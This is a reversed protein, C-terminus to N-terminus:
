DKFNRIDLIKFFFLVILWTNSRWYEGTVPDIQIKYYIGESNKLIVSYVEKGDTNNYLEANKSIISDNFNDEVIKYAEEASIYNSEDSETENSSDDGICGSVAVVMIIIGIIIGTIKKKM